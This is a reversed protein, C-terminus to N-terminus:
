CPSCGAASSRWTSGLGKEKAQSSMAILRPLINALQRKLQPTMNPAIGNALKEFEARTIITKCDASPTQSASTQEPCVGNITLVAADPAVSASTDPPAAPGEPKVAGPPTGPAAQGWALAGLLACVLWSKRM